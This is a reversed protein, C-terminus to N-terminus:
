AGNLQRRADLPKFVSEQVHKISRQFLAAAFFWGTAQVCGCKRANSSTALGFRATMKGNSLWDLSSGLMTTAAIAPTYVNGYAAESVPHAL